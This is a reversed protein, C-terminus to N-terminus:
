REFQHQLSCSVVTSPPRVGDFVTIYKRAVATSSMQVDEVANSFTTLQYEITDTLVSSLVIVEVATQQCDGATLSYYVDGGWDVSTM